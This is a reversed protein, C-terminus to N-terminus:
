PWVAAVAANIYEVFGVGAAQGLRICEELGGQSWYGLRTPITGTDSPTRMDAELYVIALADPAWGGPDDEPAKIYTAAEEPSVGYLRQAAERYAQVADSM